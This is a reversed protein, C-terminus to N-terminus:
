STHAVNISRRDNQQRNDVTAQHQRRSAKFQPQRKDVKYQSQRRDLQYQSQRKEVKYQSQRKDVKNQPQRDHQRSSHRNNKRFIRNWQDTILTKLSSLTDKTESAHRATPDDKKSKNFPWSFM